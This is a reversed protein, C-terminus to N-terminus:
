TRLESEAYLTLKSLRLSPRPQNPYIACDDLAICKTAINARTHETFIRAVDHTAYKVRQHRTFSHAVNDAWM